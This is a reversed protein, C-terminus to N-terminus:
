FIAVLSRSDTRTKRTSPSFRIQRWWREGRRSFREAGASGITVWLTAQRAQTCSHSTFRGNGRRLTVRLLTIKVRFDGSGVPLRSALLPGCEQSEVIVGRTMGTTEEERRTVASWTGAAFNNRAVKSQAWDIRVSCLTDGSPVSRTSNEFHM